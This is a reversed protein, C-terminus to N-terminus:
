DSSELTRIIIPTSNTTQYTTTDLDIEWNYPAHNNRSIIDNVWSEYIPYTQKDILSIEEIKLPRHYQANGIFHLSIFLSFLTLNRM